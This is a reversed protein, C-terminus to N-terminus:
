PQEVTQSGVCQCTLAHRRASFYQSVGSTSQCVAVFCFNSLSDFIRPNRSTLDPDGRFKVVWPVLTDLIANSRRELIQLEVVNVEVEHM